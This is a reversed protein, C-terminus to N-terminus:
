CCCCCCYFHEIQLVDTEFDIDNNSDEIDLDKIDMEATEQAPIFSNITPKSNETPVFIAFVSEKNLKWLIVQLQPNALYNTTIELMEETELPKQIGKSSSTTLTITTSNLNEFFTHFGGINMDHNVLTELTSEPKRTNCLFQYKSPVRSDQKMNKLWKRTKRLKWDKNN